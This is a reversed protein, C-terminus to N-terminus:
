NSHGKLREMKKPFRTRNPTHMQLGRTKEGRQDFNHANTSFLHTCDHIESGNCCNIASFKGLKDVPYFISKVM